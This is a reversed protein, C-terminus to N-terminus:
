RGDGKRRRVEYFKRLASPRKGGRPAQVGLAERAWRFRAPLWAMEALGEQQAVWARVESESAGAGCFAVFAPTLGLDELATLFARKKVPPKPETNNM